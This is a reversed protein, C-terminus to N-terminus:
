FISTEGGTHSCRSTDVGEYARAGSGRELDLAARGAGASKSLDLVERPSFTLYLYLLTEALFYSEMRNMKAPAREGVDEVQAYGYQAKTQKEIAEILDKAM